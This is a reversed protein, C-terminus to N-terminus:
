NESGFMDNGLGFLWSESGFRENELGFLWSESGFRENELDFLWSESSFRENELGFLWSESGFLENEPGILENKTVFLQKGFGFSLYGSRCLRNKLGFLDRNIPFSEIYLILFWYILCNYEEGEEEYGNGYRFIIRIIM